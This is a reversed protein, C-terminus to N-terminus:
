NKICRVGFGRPKNNTSQHIGVYDYDLRRGFANISSTETSSWFNGYIGLHIFVLDNGLMGNPLGTFGSENTAGTNPPNWHTYGPEKMKGGALSEGGLYTTLTTWEGDTPIHWGTPCIGQAGPTSVYQMMEDWQYMGGYVTCNSPDNNYCYKEIQSNNTQNQIGPIMIGVNLNEKLWCQSGIQVTNYVQSSYIIQDGCQWLTTFNIESGYATGANNTAYARVYYFTNPALGTLNSIFTGTGSGNITFNNALTPNPSTNYCVGRATVTSGGNFTVNGGTTATTATINSAAATTVTPLNSLTTFTIENGYATGVSNIAYARVYYLTNATLGTLSSVFTGTGSGNTTYNNALTPSPSTSWCVGRATVTGGGSSTVNGGSTATTQTINTAPNTTVTPLTIDSLTTFSIENGYATGISNTAYARVYYQTNPTLSTLISVFTGLGSGNTTYDNALTPNPTTSYCVGRAAVTAGGDTHVTGGTTAETQTINMADATTVTPLVPNEITMFTLQNGYATGASNTAYARVYYFTNPTLGTLQSTFSGTGAGDSTHSDGLDPNQQTSWCVGRATVSAGGNTTVTGGSQASTPTINTVPATSVTPTTVEPLTTFERENGYSTGESNTAYARLYYTTNPTLSIVNSTYTGTGNGDSTHTNYITPNQATSWCVGRALVYSGGDQTVTGGSTATTQAINSTENTTVTPTTITQGATFSIENGYSTGASNTAYARIYYKTNATLGTISSTFAGLGSGDTTHAHETTPNPSTNWCVGRVTVNSGGDATVTGGSTASTQTINTVATTIVTPLNPAQLTTFAIENGYSTGIENTAYARLYYTTNPTLETVSSTFVGTGSGNETKSDATTPYPNSSWCVGRQTVSSGGDAVVNGGSSASTQTVGTVVTTSVFPTTASQGTSFSLENAYQTGYISTAYARVYYSTNASLGSLVSEFAGVGTGDFTHNNTTDPNSNTGWCVGRSLVPSGNDSTIEGGCKAFTETIETMPSTTVVPLDPTTYTVMNGFLVEESFSIYARLFYTRSPSLEPLQAQFNGTKTLPGLRVNCNSLNPEGVSDWCFGHETIEKTGLDVLTGKAIASALDFDGTSVVPQRSFDKKCSISNIILIVVLLFWLISLPKQTM